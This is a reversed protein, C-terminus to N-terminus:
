EIEQGTQPMHLDGNKALATNNAYARMLRLLFRPLWPVAPGPDPRGSFGSKRKDFSDRGNANSVFGVRVIGQVDNIYGNSLKDILSFNSEIESVNSKRRVHLFSFTSNM